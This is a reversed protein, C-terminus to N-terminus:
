KLVLTDDRMEAVATDGDKVVGSLLQEALPKWCGQIARTLSRAGYVPDWGHKALWKKAAPPIVLTVQHPV